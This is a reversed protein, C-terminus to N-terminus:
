WEAYTPVPLYYKFLDSIHIDRRKKDNPIGDFAKLENLYLVGNPSVDVVKYHKKSSKYKIVKGLLKYVSFQCPNVNSEVKQNIPTGGKMSIEPMNFYDMKPMHFNDM